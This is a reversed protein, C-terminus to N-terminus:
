ADPLIEASGCAAFAYVRLAMKTSQRWPAHRAYGTGCKDSEHPHEYLKSHQRCPREIELLVKKNKSQRFLWSARCQAVERMLRTQGASLPRQWECELGKHQELIAYGQENHHEHCPNRECIADGAFAKMYMANWMYTIWWIQRTSIVEYPMSLIYGYLGKETMQMRASRIYGCGRRGVPGRVRVFLGRLHDISDESGSILRLVAARLNAIDDPSTKGAFSIARVPACVKSGNELQVVLGELEYLPVAAAHNVSSCGFVVERVLSQLRVYQEWLALVSVSQRLEGPLDTWTSPLVRSDSLMGGRQSFHAHLREVCKYKGDHSATRTNTVPGNELLARSHFLDAADELVRRRMTMKLLGVSTGGSRAAAWAADELASASHAM